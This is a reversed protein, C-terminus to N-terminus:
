LYYIERAAGDEPHYWGTMTYLPCEQGSAKIKIKFNIKCAARV